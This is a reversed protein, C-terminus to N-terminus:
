PRLRLLVATALGPNSTMELAPSPRPSPRYGPDTTGPAIHSHPGIICDHDISSSTNVIVNDGLGVTPQVVAGAFIQVGHGIIADAAVVSQPHRISAFQFGKKTWSEFIKRRLKTDKVSAIGNALQFGEADLDDILSDDGKIPVGLISEGWRDESSDTLFVPECNCLKLTDCM